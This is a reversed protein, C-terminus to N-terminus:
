KNNEWKINNSGKSQNSTNKIIKHQNSLKGQASDGKSDSWKINHSDIPGIIGNNGGKIAHTEAQAVGLSAGLSTVAAALAIAKKTRNNM